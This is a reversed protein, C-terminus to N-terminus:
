RLALPPGLVERLVIARRLSEPARLDALLRDRTGMLVAHRQETEARDAAHHAVRRAVLVREDDAAQLDEADRTKREIEVRRAHAAQPADAPRNMKREMEQLTRKLKEALPHERPAPAQVLPPPIEMRTSVPAAPGAPTTGQREAIKRRIREQIERVRRQEDDEGQLSGRQQPSQPGPSGEADPKKISKFISIIVFVVTAVQVFHALIWDIM